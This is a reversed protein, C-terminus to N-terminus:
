GQAQTDLFESDLPLIANLVGKKFFAHVEVWKGTNRAPYLRAVVSRRYPRIRGHKGTKKWQFKDYWHSSEKNEEFKFAGKWDLLYLCGNPSIWYTDMVCEFDKTQLEGIFEDGLAPCHNIVTSFLGVDTVRSEAKNACRAFLKM